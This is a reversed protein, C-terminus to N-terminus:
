DHRFKMWKGSLRGALQSWNFVYYSLSLPQHHHLKRHAQRTGSEDRYNWAGMNRLVQLRTLSMSWRERWEYRSFKPALTLCKFVVPEWLQPWAQHFRAARRHLWAWSYESQSSGMPSLSAPSLLGVQGLEMSHKRNLSQSKAPPPTPCKLLGSTTQSSYPNGLLLCSSNVYKTPKKKM